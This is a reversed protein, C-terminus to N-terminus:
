KLNYEKKLLDREFKLLDIQRELETIAMDIHRIKLQALKPKELLFIPGPDAIPGRFGAWLIPNVTHSRTWDPGPDSIPGRLTGINVSGIDLKAKIAELTSAIDKLIKDEM